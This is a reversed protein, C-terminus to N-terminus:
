RGQARAPDLGFCKLYGPGDHHRRTVFTHPVPAGGAAAACSWISGDWTAGSGTDKWTLETRAPQLYDLHVCRIADRPPPGALGRAAVTGLCAYGVPAVPNYLAVDAEGRAGASSWILEYAVPAALAAPDESRVVLTGDVPAGHGAVAVDGVSWFGDPPSPRWVSVDRLAGTGTDDWLPSYSATVQLELEAQPAAPIGRGFLGEAVPQGIWVDPQDVALLALVTAPTDWIRLERTLRRPAAQPARLVFPIPRELDTDEGHLLGSGGHDASVILATYPWMGAAKLSDIVRGLLADAHELARDYAASGWGNLHGAHDVHDLHIFLLDPRNVVMWQLAADVTQDEDGPHTMVDAVGPEVLRGFDSWDHFVGIKAGPRADRLVAFVTIPPTSDGPQWSNSLVGHQDASSGDIMSMWNTSSMTPLANQMDLTYVSQALLDNFVPMPAGGVYAGGMGDVGVVVVHRIPTVCRVRLDVDAQAVVAPGEVTCVQDPGAPQARVEIAVPAGDLLERSFTFEGDSVLTLAEDGMALVVSAGQLGELRGRVAHLDRVEEGGSSASSASSSAGGAGSDPASSSCAVVTVFALASSTACTRRLSPAM